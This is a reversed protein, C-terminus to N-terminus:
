GGNMGEYEWHMFERLHDVIQFWAHAQLSAVREHIAKEISKADFHDVLIGPIYGSDKVRPIARPTAVCVQFNNSAEEGVLGITLTFWSFDDYPDPSKYELFGQWGDFDNPCISQVEAQVNSSIDEYPRDAM